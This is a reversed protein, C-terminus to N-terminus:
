GIRLGGHISRLEGRFDGFLWIIGVAPEAPGGFVMATLDGKLVIGFYADAIKFRRRGCMPCTVEGSLKRM